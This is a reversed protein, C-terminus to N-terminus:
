NLGKGAKLDWRLAMGQSDRGGKEARLSRQSLSWMLSKCRPCNKERRTEWRTHKDATPIYAQDRGFGKRQPGGRRNVQKRGKLGGAKPCYVATMQNM